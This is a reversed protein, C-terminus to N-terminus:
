RLLHHTVQEALGGYNGTTTRERWGENCFATMVSNCFSSKGSGSTGILAINLARGGKKVRKQFKEVERQRMIETTDETKREKTEMFDEDERSGQAM